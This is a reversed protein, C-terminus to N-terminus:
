KNNYNYILLIQFYFQKYIVKIYVKIFGYFIFLIYLLSKKLYNKLNYKLYNKLNIILKIYLKYIM